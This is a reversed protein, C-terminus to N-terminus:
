GKFGSHSVFTPQFLSIEHYGQPVYINNCVQSIVGNTGSTKIIYHLYPASSQPLTIRPM